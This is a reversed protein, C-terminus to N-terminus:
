VTPSVIMNDQASVNKTTANIAPAKPKPPMAPSAAQTACTNNTTNKTKNRTEAMEPRRTGGTHGHVPADVVAADHSLRDNTICQCDTTLYNRSTQEECSIQGSPGHKPKARFSYQCHSPFQKRQSTHQDRHEAESDAASIYLGPVTAALPIAATLLLLAVVPMQLMGILAVVILTAIALATLLGAAVPILVIGIISVAVVAKLLGTVMITPLRCVARRGDGDVSTLWRSRDM